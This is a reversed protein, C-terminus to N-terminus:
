SYCSWFPKTITISLDGGLPIAILGCAIIWLYEWGDAWTRLLPRGDLVASIIQSTAHAHFEAGKIIGPPKLNAIATTNITDKVSEATVGIIVIKDRLWNPDEVRNNVIDQFSFTRFRVKGRRYNLLIQVGGDDARVYGGTHSLFRPLETEGFRMTNPDRIGNELPINRTKLYTEALRLPLSFVYENRSEDKWTGLISRRVHGDADLLVDSFGIQENHLEAPPPITDQGLVKAIAILNKSKQFVKVREQYGPEVPIDRVLDLGIVVPKYTQLKRLLQAIERDPIPYSGIERIDRDNIGVIVIRKDIPESLLQRLFYDLSMWEFFQLSGIMRALTVLIIVAIGIRWRVIQQFIKDGINRQM